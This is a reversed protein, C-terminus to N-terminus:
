MHLLRDFESNSPWSDQRCMGRRICAVRTENSTCATCFKEQDYWIGERYCPLDLTIHKQLITSSVLTRAARRMNDRGRVYMNDTVAARALSFLSLPTNVNLTAHEIYTEKGLKYLENGMYIEQHERQDKFSIYTVTNCDHLIDQNAYNVSLPVGAMHLLTIIYGAYKYFISCCFLHLYGDAHEISCQNKIIHALKKTNFINSQLLDFFKHVCLSNTYEPSPKFTDNCIQTCSYSGNKDLGLTLKDCLIDLIQIHMDVTTEFAVTDLYFLTSLSCLCLRHLSNM